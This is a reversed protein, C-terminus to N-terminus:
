NNKGNEYIYIHVKNAGLEILRMALKKTDKLNDDLFEAEVKYSKEKKM